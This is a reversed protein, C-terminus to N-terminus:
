KLLGDKVLEREQFVEKSSRLKLYYFGERSLMRKRQLILPAAHVDTGEDM